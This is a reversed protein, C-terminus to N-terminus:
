ETDDVPTEDASTADEELTDAEAAVAIANLAEVEAVIDHSASAATSELEILTQRRKRAEDVKSKLKERDEKPLDRNRSLDYIAMEARKPDIDILHSTYQHLMQTDNIDIWSRITDFVQANGRAVRRLVKAAEPRLTEDEAVWALVPEIVSDGFNVVANLAASYAPRQEPTDALIDLLKPLFASLEWEGILRIANVPARGNGFSDNLYLEDTDLLDTLLPIVEDKSDNLYTAAYEVSNMKFIVWAAEYLPNTRESLAQRWTPTTLEEAM